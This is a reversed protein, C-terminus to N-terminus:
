KAFTVVKKKRRGYYSRAVRCYKYPLELSRAEQMTLDIFEDRTLKKKTAAIKKNVNLILKEASDKDIEEHVKEKVSEISDILDEIRIM